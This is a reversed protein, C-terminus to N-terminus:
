FSEALVSQMNSNLKNQVYFLMSCVQKEVNEFM